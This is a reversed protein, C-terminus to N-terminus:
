GALLVSQPQVPVPKVAASVPLHVAVRTGTNGPGKEMAFTGGLSQARERMGIVGLGRTTAVGSSSGPMGQGDDEITVDLGHSSRSLTVVVNRAGSHRAVNTLAEQVIRYVCVEVDPSAREHMGSQIFDAQVGTRKSFARLHARLAEPLGFDDLTSPHLLQSLDRVNQLTNESLTRADELWSAIRAGNEVGRLGDVARLAVAVDMKIATLAQGVEDHLERAISRREEEQVTVLRASLRELEQRSLREEARKTDIQRELRGVRHTALVAVLLGFLIALAGSVLLRQRLETYLAAMEAEHEQESLVQLESLHDIIQLITNRAPVVRGRLVSAAESTNFPGGPSLAAERSKWFVELEARLRSWAERAEPSTVEQVYGPLLREVEGRIDDLQQRYYEANMSRNDIIADRLYVSGLLVNTRLTTLLRQGDLAAQYEAAGRQEVVQLRRVLDYGSVLWLGFVISFGAILVKHISSNGRLSVGSTMAEDYHRTTRPDLAAMGRIM